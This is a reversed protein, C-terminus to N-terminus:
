CFLWQYQWHGHSLAVDAFCSSSFYRANYREENLCEFSILRVVAEGCYFFATLAVFFIDSHLFLTAVRVHFCSRGAMVSMHLLFARVWVGCCLAQTEGREDSDNM